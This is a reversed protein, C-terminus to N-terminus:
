ARRRIADITARTEATPQVRLDDHLRRAFADYVRIAEARDGARDLVCVLRRLASESYPSIDLARAAARAAAVLNGQREECQAVSFAASLASARLREREQDLWHAFEV